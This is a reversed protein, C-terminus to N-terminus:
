PKEGKGKGNDEDKPKSSLLEDLGLDRIKIADVEVAEDMLSSKATVVSRDVGRIKKKQAESFVLELLTKGEADKMAIRRNGENAAKTGLFEVVELGQLRDLLTSVKRSDIKLQPDSKNVVEWGEKKKEVEVSKKALKLEIKHIDTKKFDFPANKDRLNEPTLNLFKEADVTPLVGIMAPDVVYISYTKDKGEILHALWSGKDKLDVKIHVSNKAAKFPQLDEPRLHGENQIASLSNGTLKSLMDRVLAQDLKWKPRSPLSWKSDKIEFEVINKGNEIRVKEIETAPFKLPRKDRYFFIQKELAAYWNPQGLLVQKEDNRRLYAEGQFNKRTSVSVEITKGSKDKLTISGRPQALGFQEWDVKERAGGVDTSKEKLLSELESKVSEQDALENIPSVISWGLSGHSLMLKNTVLAQGDHTITSPESLIFTIDTVDSPKLRFVFSNEAKKEDKREQWVYDFVSASVAVATVGLLLWLGKNKM